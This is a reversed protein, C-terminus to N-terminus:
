RDERGSLAATVAARRRAPEVVAALESPRPYKVLHGQAGLRVVREVDSPEDSTSLVIVTMRELLRREQLWELLEFGDMRPMKLDLFMLWLRPQDASAATQSREFWHVFDLGDALHLVPDTIGAAKLRRELFFVDTPNDDTVLIPGLPVDINM